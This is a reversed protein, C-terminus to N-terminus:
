DVSGRPSRRNLGMKVFITKYKLGREWSPLSTNNNKHMDDNETFKLGREWSPLSGLRRLATRPMRIEIWAGVLPAVAIKAM